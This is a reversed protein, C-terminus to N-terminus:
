AIGRGCLFLRLYSTLTLLPLTSTPILPQPQGNCALLLSFLHRAEYNSCLVAIARNSPDM